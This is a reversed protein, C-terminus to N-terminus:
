LGTKGKRQLDQEFVKSDRLSAVTALYDLLKSLDKFGLGYDFKLGDLFINAIESCLKANGPFELETRDMRKLLTKANIWKSNLEKM